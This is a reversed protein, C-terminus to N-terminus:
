ETCYDSGTQALLCCMETSVTTGCCWVVVTTVKLLPTEETTDIRSPLQPCGLLVIDWGGVFNRWPQLSEHQSQWPSGIEVTLGPSSGDQSSSSACGEKAHTSSRAQTKWGGRKLRVDVLARHNKCGKPRVVASCSRPFQLRAAYM